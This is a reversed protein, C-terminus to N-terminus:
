VSLAERRAAEVAPEKTEGPVPRDERVPEREERRRAESRAANALDSTTLGRDKEVESM